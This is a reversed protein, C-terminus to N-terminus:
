EENVYVNLGFSSTDPICVYEIKNKYHEWANGHGGVIIISDKSHTITAMPMYTTKGNETVGVKCYTYYDDADSFGDSHGNFLWLSDVIVSDKAKYLYLERSGKGIYDPEFSLFYIFGDYTFNISFKEFRLPYYHFDSVVSSYENQDGKNKNLNRSCIQSFVSNSILIIILIVFIKKM